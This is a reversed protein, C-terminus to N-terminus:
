SADEFNDICGRQRRSGRSQNQPTQQGATPWQSCSKTEAPGDLPRLFLRDRLIRRLRADDFDFVLALPKSVARTAAAVQRLPSNCQSKVCPLIASRSSAPSFQVAVFCSSQGFHADIV